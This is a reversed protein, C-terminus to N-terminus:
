VDCCLKLLRSQKKLIELSVDQLISLVQETDHQPGVFDFNQPFVGLKTGPLAGLQDVLIWSLLDDDDSLDQARHSILGAVNASQRPM